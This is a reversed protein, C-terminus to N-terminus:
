YDDSRRRRPRRGDRGSSSGGQDGGLFGDTLTKFLKGATGKGALLDEIKQSIPDKEGDSDLGRDNPV